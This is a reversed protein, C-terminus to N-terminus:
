VEVDDFHDMSVGLHDSAWMFRGEMMDLLWEGDRMLGVWGFSGRFLVGLEAGSGFDLAVM